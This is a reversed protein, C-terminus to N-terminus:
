SVIRNRVGHGRLEQPSLLHAFREDGAATAVVSAEASAAGVALLAVSTDPAIRAQRDALSSCISGIRSARAYGPPPRAAGIAPASGPTGCSRRPSFRGVTRPM